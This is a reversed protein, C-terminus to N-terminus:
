RDARVAARGAPRAACATARAGARRGVGGGGFARERELAQRFDALEKSGPGYRFERLNFADAGLEGPFQDVRAEQRGFANEGHLQAVQLGNFSEVLFDCFLNVGGGLHREFEFM